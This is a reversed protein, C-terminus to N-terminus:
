VYAHLRGRGGISKSASDNAERKPPHDTLPAPPSILVDASANQGKCIV